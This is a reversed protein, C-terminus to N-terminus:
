EPKHRATGAPRALLAALHELRGALQRDEQEKERLRKLQRCVSSGSGLGLFVGVDRQNMGAYRVLM